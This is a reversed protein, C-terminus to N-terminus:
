IKLFSLLSLRLLVNTLIPLLKLIVNDHDPLPLPVFVASVAFVVVVVDAFSFLM